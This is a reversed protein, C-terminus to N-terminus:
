VKAKKYAKSAEESFDTYADSVKGAYDKYTGATEKVFDKAEDKLESAQATLEDYKEKGKSLLDGLKKAVDNASSKLDSRLNKGKDPALLMGVVVGAAAAGLIGLLISGSNKM